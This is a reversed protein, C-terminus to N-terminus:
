PKPVPLELEVIPVQVMPHPPELAQLPLVASEDFRPLDKEWHSARFVWALLLLILSVALWNGARRVLAARGETQAEAAMADQVEARGLELFGGCRICFTKQLPTQAGCKPCIM